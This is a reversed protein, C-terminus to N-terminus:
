KNGKTWRYLELAALFAKKDREFSHADSELHEFTGDKRINVIIQGDFHSEPFEEQYAIQYASTQAFQESYIGSSTKFDGLLTKGNIKAIFDFTGAFNHEKSYVKVESAIWEIKNEAEWALFADVTKQLTENFVETKEGTKIYNEAWAHFLGGVDASKDRKVRHANKAGTALNKIDVEDMASGPKLNELIYDHAMNAAWAILAPKAIVGLISTVGDVTQNDVTYHHKAPNFSLVITDDYLNHTEYM